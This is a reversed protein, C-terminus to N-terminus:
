APDCTALLDDIHCTALCEVTDSAGYYIKVMGDSELVNGGPFIVQNRYGTTEYSYRAEPVMIPKRSYGIVRSPDELDLLMSAMTYRKDWTGEWGWKRTPDRDVAHILCLWGKETKIPPAGPGIKDNTWPLQDCTLVLKNDGWYRGDISFSIWIDFRDNPRLYGAFPRELRVIRGNVREPFIVMNRNDPASVNLVDWTKLDDTVAVGGRTGRGGCAFCLYLRDELVTLRPDYCRHLPHGPAANIPQPDVKWAIGDESFALGLNMGTIEKKLADGIDNRFLMVYRGRWRAVGANFILTAPYPVDAASLIPNGPYRTIARHAVPKEGRATEKLTTSAAPISVSHTTM